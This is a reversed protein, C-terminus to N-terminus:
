TLKLDIEKIYTHEGDIWKEYNAAVEPCAMQNPYEQDLDPFLFVIKTLRLHLLHAISICLIIM